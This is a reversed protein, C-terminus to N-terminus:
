HRNQRASRGRAVTPKLPEGTEALVRQRDKVSVEQWQGSELTGIEFDGIMVRILRLTPHGVAATMRRVQHNKGEMLEMAIWCDPVSKRERIPPTRAPVEPQPELMWAKCPLTQYDGIKVGASLQHLSEATPIREVQAWYRRRHGHRPHLLRDILPGEDSLLLLGESEADLRGVPYVGRPFAFEKLTRWRSGEGTFQSVSGYPKNFAILMIFRFADEVDLAGRGVGLECPCESRALLKSTPCQSDPTRHQAQRLSMGQHIGM